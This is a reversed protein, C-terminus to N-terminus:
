TQWSNIGSSSSPSKKSLMAEESKDLIESAAMAKKRLIAAEGKEDDNGMNLFGGIIALLHSNFLSNADLLGVAGLSQSKVLQTFNAFKINV